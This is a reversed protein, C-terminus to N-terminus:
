RLPSAGATWKIYLSALRSFPPGPNHIIYYRVGRRQVPFTFPPTMNYQIINYKFGPIKNSSQLPPRQRQRRWRKRRWRKRWDRGCVSKEGRWCPVTCARAEVAVARRARGRIMILVELGPGPPGAPRGLGGGTGPAGSRAAPAPAPVPRGRRVM